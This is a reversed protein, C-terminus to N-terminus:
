GRGSRRRGGQERGARFLVSLDTEGLVGRLEGPTGDLVLTGRELMMLRQAHREVADLDHSVVLVARGSHARRALDRWLRDASEPDLGATPEDLLLLAPDHILGAALHLRRKLGGSWTGVRQDLHSALGYTAALDELRRRQEDGRLGYLSALLALTERGTLEPDLAPEQPIYALRRFLDRCRARRAQAPDTVGLVEVQGANPTLFGGLIRLLTTKGAGNAGILVALESAALTLDLGALIEGGGPYRHRLGRAVIVPADIPM